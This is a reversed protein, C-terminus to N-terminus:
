PNDARKLRLKREVRRIRNDTRRNAVSREPVAAVSDLSQKSTAHRKLFPAMSRTRRRHCTVNGLCQYGLTPSKRLEKHSAVSLDAHRYKGSPTQLGKIPVGAATQILLCKNSITAIARIVLHILKPRKIVHRPLSKLDPPSVPHCIM